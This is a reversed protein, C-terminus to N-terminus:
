VEGRQAQVEHHHGEGESGPGQVKMKNEIRSIWTDIQDNTLEGLNDVCEKKLIAEVTEQPNSSGMRIIAMLNDIKVPDSAENPEHNITTSKQAVWDDIQYSSSGTSKQQPRNKTSSNEIVAYDQAEETSIFGKLIDAFVDKLCSRARMKLMRKPYSKWPGAKNWLGAIEADKKSFTETQAVGNKRKATCTATMTADDFSEDIFDCVSSALCIAILADGYISPKGHIVAVNQLAQMPKLGLELGHQIAILVSAPKGRYKEPCLDSTSIMEACKMADNFNGFNMFGNSSQNQEIVAHNGSITLEKSM